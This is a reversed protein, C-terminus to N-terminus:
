EVCASCVTCLCIELAFRQGPWKMPPTRCLQHCISRAAIDARRTGGPRPSSIRSTPTDQGGAWFTAASRV